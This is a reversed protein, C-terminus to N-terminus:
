RATAVFFKWAAALITVSSAIAPWPRGRLAVVLSLLFSLGLFVAGPFLMAYTVLGEMGVSGASPSSDRRMGYLVIAGCLLSLAFSVAWSWFLGGGAKSEQM